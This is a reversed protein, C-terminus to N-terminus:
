GSSHCSAESCKDTVGQHNRNHRAEFEAESMRALKRARKALNKDIGLEALTPGDPGFIRNAM